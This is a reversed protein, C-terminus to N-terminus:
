RFSGRRRMEDRMALTAEEVARDKIQLMANRIANEAGPAAGRADINIVFGGAGGAGSILSNLRTSGGKLPIILEPGAEGILAMTPKTVLGGSAFAQIEGGERSFRQKIDITKESPLSDLEQGLDATADTTADIQTELDEFQGISQSAFDTIISYVAFIQDGSLNAFDEFSTIGVDKLKQFAAEAEPGFKNGIFDSLIGFQDTGLESAEKFALELGKLATRPTDMSKATLDIAESMSGTGVLNDQALLNLNQLASGFEGASIKGDLFMQTVVDKTQEVTVGFKEYTAKINLMVENFTEGELSANTLMGILDTKLKDTLGLQEALVEALPKFAAVTENAFKKGFDVDFTNKGDVREAGFDLGGFPLTFRYQEDIIGAEQLQSRLDDRAKQDFEKKGGFLGAKDLAFSVAAVIAVPLAIPAISAGTLAASYASGSAFPGFSGALGAGFGSLTAGIGGVGGAGILGGTASSLLGGGVSASATGLISNAITGGLDQLSGIGAGFSGTLATAMQAAFGVAIQKLADELSFTVGTIANEFANRWFDVSEKYAEEQSEIMAEKIPGTEAEVRKETNAEIVEANLEKIRGGSDKQADELATKEAEYIAEYLKKKITEFDVLNGAEGAAELQNKLDEIVKENKIKRLEKVLGEEIEKRLKAAEEAAKKEEKGFQNLAQAADITRPTFVGLATNLKGKITGGLETVVKLAPFMTTISNSVSQTLSDFSTKGIDGVGKLNNILEGVFKGGTLQGMIAAVEIVSNKFRNFEEIMLNIVAVTSEGWGRITKEIILIGQTFETREQETDFLAILVATVGTIAIATLGLPTILAKLGLSLSGLGIITAKLAILLPGLGALFAAIGIIINKTPQPLAVFKDVLGAIVEIGAQIAPKMENFIRVFEKGLPEVAAGFVARLEKFSKGLEEMQGSALLVGTAFGAIPLTFAKTLDKGTKGLQNAFKRMVKQAGQLDQELRALNARLDINLTGVNGGAM